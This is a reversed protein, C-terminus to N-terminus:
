IRMRGFRKVRIKSFEKSYCNGPHSCIFIVRFFNYGYIIQHWFGWVGDPMGKRLTVGLKLWTFLHIQTACLKSLVVVGLPWHIISLSVRSFHSEFTMLLSPSYFHGSMRQIGYVQSGSREQFSVESSVKGNFYNCVSAMSLDSRRLYVECWPPM